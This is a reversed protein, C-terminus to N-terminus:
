LHFVSDHLLMWMSCYCVSVSNARSFRIETTLVSNKPLLFEIKINNMLFRNGYIFIVIEPM